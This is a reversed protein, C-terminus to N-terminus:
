LTDKYSYDGCIKVALDEANSLKTMMDSESNNDIWADRYAELSRMTDTLQSALQIQCELDLSTFKGSNVERCKALYKEVDKITLKDM